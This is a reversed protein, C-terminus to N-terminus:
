IELILIEFTHFYRSNQLLLYTLLDNSKLYIDTKQLIKVVGDEDERCYPKGVAGEEGDKKDKRLVVLGM